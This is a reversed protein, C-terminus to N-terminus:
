RNCHKGSYEFNAPEFGSSSLPINIAIFVNLYVGFLLVNRFISVYLTIFVCVVFM